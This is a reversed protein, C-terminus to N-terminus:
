GHSFTVRTEKVRMRDAFSITTQCGITTKTSPSKPKPYAKHLADERTIKITLPNGDKGIMRTSQILAYSGPECDQELRRIGYREAEQHKEFLQRFEVEKGSPTIKSQLVGYRNMVIVLYNSM